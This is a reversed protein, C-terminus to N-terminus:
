HLPAEPSAEQGSKIAAHAESFLSGHVSCICCDRTYYHLNEACHLGMHTCLLSIFVGPKIKSSIVPAILTAYGIMDNKQSIEWFLSRKPYRIQNLKCINKSYFRIDRILDKIGFRPEPAVWLIRPKSKLSPPQPIHPM